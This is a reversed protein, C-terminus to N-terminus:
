SSVQALGHRRLSQIDTVSRRDLFSHMAVKGADVLAWKQAQTINFDIPSIGLDDVQIVRSRATPAENIADTQTGILTRLLAVAYDLPFRVRQSSEDDSATVVMGITGFNATQDDDFVHIPLNYLVGGDVYIDGAVRVGEFFLPIAMSIRVAEVLPRNSLAETPFTQPTRRSLNTGIIRITTGCKRECEIISALPDGVKRRVYEGLQKELFKADFWGFKTLMRFPGLLPNGGPISKFDLDMLIKLVESPTYGLGALAAVIAGASTGAFGKIDGYLGREELALMGGVYAANRVGTGGFVLNTITETM